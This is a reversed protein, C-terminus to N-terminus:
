SVVYTWEFVAGEINLQGNLATRVNKAHIM